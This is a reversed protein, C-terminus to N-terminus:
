RQMFIVQNDTISVFHKKKRYCTVINFFDFCFGGHVPPAPRYSVPENGFVAGRFIIELVVGDPEIVLVQAFGFFNIAAGKEPLVFFVAIFTVGDFYPSDLELDVPIIDQKFFVPVKRNVYEM